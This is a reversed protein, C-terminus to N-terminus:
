HARQSTYQLDMWGSLYIPSFVTLSLFHYSWAIDTSIWPRYEAVMIIGPYQAACCQWLSAHHIIHHYSGGRGPHSSPRLFVAASIHAFPFFLVAEILKLSIGRSADDYALHKPLPHVGALVVGSWFSQVRFPYPQLHHTDRGGGSSFGKLSGGHHQHCLVKTGGGRRPFSFIPNILKGIIDLFEGNPLERFRKRRRTSACNTM